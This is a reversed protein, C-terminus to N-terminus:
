RAIERRARKRARYRGDRARKLDARRELEVAVALFM